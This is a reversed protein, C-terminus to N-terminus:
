LVKEAIGIAKFFKPSDEIGKMAYTNNKDDLENYLNRGINQGRFEPKVFFMCWGSLTKLCIGVASDYPSEPNTYCLVIQNVLHIECTLFEQLIWGDVFLRNNYAVDSFEIIETKNHTKTYYFEDM